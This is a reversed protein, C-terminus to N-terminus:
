LKLTSQDKPGVEVTNFTSRRIVLVKVTEIREGEPVDMRPSNEPADDRTGVEEPVQICPRAKATPENKSPKKRRWPRWELFRRVGSSGRSSRSMNSARLDAEPEHEQVQGLPETQSFPDSDWVIVSEKDLKSHRYCPLTSLIELDETLGDESTGSAYTNADVAGMRLVATGRGGFSGKPSMSAKAFSGKPSMSTSYTCQLDRLTEHLPVGGEQNFQGVVSALSQSLNQLGTFIGDEHNGMTWPRNHTVKVGEPLRLTKAFDIWFVQGEGSSDAVLLVSSGIFEHSDVLPSIYMETLLDKLACGMNEAISAAINGNPDTEEGDNTAAIQCFEKLTDTIEELSKLNALEKNLAKKDKKQYGAIGDIRLGLTGITSCRDRLTMWRHKTIVGAQREEDTVEDPYESAMREYLDPRPKPNNCETEVFTRVGIKIDMVKPFRFGALVNRLRMFSSGEYQVVGSFSPIHNCVPDTPTNTKGFLSQYVELENDDVLKLIYMAKGEVVKINGGGRAAHGAACNEFDRPVHKGDSVGRSIAAQFSDLSTRSEAM